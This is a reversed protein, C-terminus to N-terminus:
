FLLSDDCICSSVLCALLRHMKISPFLLIDNASLCLTASTHTAITYPAPVQSVQLEM